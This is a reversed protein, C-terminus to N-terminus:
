CRVALTAVQWDQETGDVAIAYRSCGDPLPMQDGSGNGRATDALEALTVIVVAHPLPDARLLEAHAMVHM